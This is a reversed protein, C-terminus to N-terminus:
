TDPKASTSHQVSLQLKTTYDSDPLMIGWPKSKKKEFQKTFESDQPEMYIKLHNTRTRHFHWLIPVANYLFLSLIILSRFTWGLDM